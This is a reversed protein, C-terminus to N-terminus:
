VLYEWYLNQINTLLIQQYSPSLFGLFFAQLYPFYTLYHFISLELFALSFIINHQFIHKSSLLYKNERQYLSLESRIMMSREMMRLSSSFPKYLKYWFLGRSAINIVVLSHTFSLLHFIWLCLSLSLCFCLSLFSLKLLLSISLLCNTQTGSAMNRISGKIDAYNIVSFKCKVFIMELMSSLENTIFLFCIYRIQLFYM